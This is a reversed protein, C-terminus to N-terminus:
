YDEKIVIPTRYRWSYLYVMQDIQPIGNREYQYYIEELEPLMPGQAYEILLEDNM